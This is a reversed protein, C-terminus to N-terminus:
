EQWDIKTKCVPCYYHMDRNVIEDCVGCEQLNENDNIEEQPYKGDLNVYEIVDSWM